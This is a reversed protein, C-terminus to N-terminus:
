SPTPREGPPGPPTPGSPSAGSPGVAPPPGPARRLLAQDRDALARELSAARAEASRARSRWRWGRLWLPLGAIVLGLGFALLILGALPQGGLTWVLFRATAPENNQLAFVAVAAALVAVLLYGLAM